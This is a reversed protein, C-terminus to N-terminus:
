AKLTRLLSSTAQSKHNREFHSEIFDIVQYDDDILAIQPWKDFTLCPHSVQCSIIDGVQIKHEKPFAMFAHQDNLDNLLWNSDLQHLKKNSISFHKHPTPLGSDFSVDRKGINLIALGPEPISQIYSLVEITSELTGDIKKAIPDRDTLEKQFQEYIGSDHSLYCGPRILLDYDLSLKVKGLIDSVRDFFVTGGGSLILKDKGFLGLQDIEISTEAVFHLFKDVEPIPNNCHIVGEYCEIGALQLNPAYSHIYQALKIVDPKTRLGARGHEPAIEILVQLPRSLKTSASNLQDINDRNDVLCYFEFDPDKQLIDTISAINQKGVLQNAMLIKKIGHSYATTVQYSTALTMGWAGQQVQLKFLEPCMTTKGHPALKVNALDAYTQMWQCNNLLSSKNITMLPLQYDEDLLNLRSKQKKSGSM